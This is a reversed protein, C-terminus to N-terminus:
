FRMFNAATVWQGYANPYSGIGITRPSRSMLVARHPPSNMWMRVVGRPTVSGRALTEGAWRAHCRKMITTMSQHYFANNSALYQGWSEAVADTCSAFRLARLGHRARQRNVWYQVGREYAGSSLHPYAQTAVLNLSAATVPRTPEAGATATTEPAALATVACVAVLGNVLLRRVNKLVHRRTM